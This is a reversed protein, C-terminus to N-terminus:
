MRKISRIIKLATAEEYNGAPEIEILIGAGSELLPESIAIIKGDKHSVIFEHDTNIILCHSNSKSESLLKRSIEGVWAISVEGFESSWVWYRADINNEEILVVGSPLWLEFSGFIKIGGPDNNVEPEPCFPINKQSAQNACGFLGVLLLIAIVARTMKIGRRSSPM